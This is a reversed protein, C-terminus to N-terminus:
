PIELHVFVVVLVFAGAGATINIRLTPPRALEDPLNCAMRYSLFKDDVREHFSMQPLLALLQRGVVAFLVQYASIMTDLLTLRIHM